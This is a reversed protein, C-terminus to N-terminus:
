LDFAALADELTARRPPEMAALKQRAQYAAAQVNFTKPHKIGLIRVLDKKRRLASRLRYLGYAAAGLLLCGGFSGFIALWVWWSLKRHGKNKSGSSGEDDRDAPVDTTSGHANKARAGRRLSLQAPPIM